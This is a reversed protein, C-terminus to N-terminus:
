KNKEKYERWYKVIVDKSVNLLNAIESTKTGEKKAEIILKIKEQSTKNM